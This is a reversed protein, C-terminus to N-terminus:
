NWPTLCDVACLFYQSYNWPALCDVACLFVSFLEVAHPLHTPIINGLFTIHPNKRLKPVHLCPLSRTLDTVPRFWHSFTNQSTESSGSHAPTRLFSIRALKFFHQKEFNGVKKKLNKLNKVRMELIRLDLFWFGSFKWFKLIGRSKPAVILPEWTTARM